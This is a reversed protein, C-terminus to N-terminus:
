SALTIHTPCTSHTHTHTHTHTNAVSVCRSHRRQRTHVGRLIHMCAGRAFNENVRVTRVDRKNSQACTQSLHEEVDSDESTTKAQTSIVHLVSLFTKLTRIHAFKAQHTTKM